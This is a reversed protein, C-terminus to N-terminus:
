RAPPDVACICHPATIHGCSRREELVRTAEGAHLFVAYHYAGVFDGGRRPGAVQVLNILPGEVAVVELANEWGVYQYICSIVSAAPQRDGPPLIVRTSPPVARVLDGVRFPNEMAPFHVDAERPM